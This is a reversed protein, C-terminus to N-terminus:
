NSRKSAPSCQFVKRLTILGTAVDCLQESTLPKLLAAIKDQTVLQIEKLYASGSDTLTLRIQRRMEPHEVRNVFHRQVLRDTMASATARTVGLHDAVESLSAGPFQDLYALVRFQPVSLLTSSQDRMEVRIFQMIAPVVEMLGAACQDPTITQSFHEM